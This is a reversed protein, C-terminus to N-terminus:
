KPDLEAHLHDHELIVDYDKGLASRMRDRWGRAQSVLPGRINRIRIDFAENTYHKSGEKHKGDNASTVWLINDVLEPATDRAAHLIRVVREDFHAGNVIVNNRLLITPKM